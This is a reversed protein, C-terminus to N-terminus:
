RNARANYQRNIMESSWARWRMQQHEFYTVAEIVLPDNSQDLLLNPSYVGEAVPRLYRFVSLAWATRYWGGPCGEDSREPREPDEPSSDGMYRFSM